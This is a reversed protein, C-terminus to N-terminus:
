LTMRRRFYALSVVTVTMTLANARSFTAGVGFPLLFDEFSSLAAVGSTM